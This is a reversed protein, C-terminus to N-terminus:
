AEMCLKVMILTVSGYMAKGHNTDRDMCLKVMILTVSEYM